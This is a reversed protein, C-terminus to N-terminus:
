NKEALQLYKRHMKNIDERLSLMEQDSSIVDDAAQLRSQRPYQSRIILEVEETTSEDRQRVRELQKSEAVDIVLIRDVMEQQGTELLLPIVLIVYNCNLEAVRQAMTERIAPHLISELEQRSKPDDFIQKRLLNRRLQGSADILHAGFTDRIRALIPSGPAVLERSIEDADIVPVGLERFQDSVTTKGSGIGGTLGVVLM